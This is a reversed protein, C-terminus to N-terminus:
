SGEGVLELLFKCTSGGKAKCAIEEAIFREKFTVACGGIITGVLLGCAPKDSKINKCIFCNDIDIIWKGREQEYIKPKLRYGYYLSLSLVKPLDRLDFRVLPSEKNELLTRLATERAAYEQFYQEVEELAETEEPASRTSVYFASAKRIMNYVEFPVTSGRKKLFFLAVSAPIKMALRNRFRLTLRKEPVKPTGIKISVMGRLNWIAIKRLFDEIKEPYLFYLHSLPTESIQAYLWRDFTSMSVPTKSVVKDIKISYLNDRLYDVKKKIELESEKPLNETFEDGWKVLIRNSDFTYLFEEGHFESRCIRFLKFSYLNRREGKLNIEVYGSILNNLKREFSPFTGKSLIIFEVMNTKSIKGIWFEIMKLIQSEEEKLLLYHLYNHIIVGENNMSDRIKSVFLNVETATTIKEFELIEQPLNSKVENPTIIIVKAPNKALIANLFLISEYRNEDLVSIITGNSIEAIYDFIEHGSIFKM